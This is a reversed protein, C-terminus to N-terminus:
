GGQVPAMFFLFPLFATPEDFELIVVSGLAPTYSSPIGFELIVAAGNAPTYSTM